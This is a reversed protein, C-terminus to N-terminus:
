IWLTRTRLIKATTEWLKVVAIQWMTEQSPLLLVLQLVECPLLTANQM